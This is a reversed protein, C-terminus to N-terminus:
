RRKQIEEEDAKKRGEIENPLGTNREVLALRKKRSETMQKEIRRSGRERSWGEVILRSGGVLEISPFATQIQEAIIGWGAGYPRWPDGVRGSVTRVIM